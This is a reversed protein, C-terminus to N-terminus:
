TQQAKRSELHPSPLLTVAVYRLYSSKAIEPLYQENIIKNYYYEVLNQM